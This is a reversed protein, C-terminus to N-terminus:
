AAGRRRGTNTVKAIERATDEPLPGGAGYSVNVVLSGGGGGGGGRGGPSAGRDRSASADPASQGGGGGFLSAAVAPGGVSVAQGLAILGVGAAAQAIGAPNGLIASAAGAAAVEAGKLTIFGGAQQSLGALLIEGFAAQGDAAAVAAQSIIGATTVVQSSIFAGHGEATQKKQRAEEQAIQVREEAQRQAERTAEADMRQTEQTAEANLRALEERGDAENKLRHAIADDRMSQLWIRSKEFTESEEMAEPSVAALGIKKTPLGAAAKGTELLQKQELLTVTKELINRQQEFRNREAFYEEEASVKMANRAKIVDAVQVNVADIEAQVRAAAQKVTEPGAADRRLAALDREAKQMQGAVAEVPGYTKAILDDQERNLSALHSSFADVAALGAVLALAFPGGAGFAAAMQGAGAVMKGVQGGMGEMSSSVLSIAAAQKSLGEASKGIRQRLTETSTATSTATTEAAKKTAAALDETARKQGLQAKAAADIAREHAASAKAAKTSEAGYDAIAKAAAEAAKQEKVIAATARTTADALARENGVLSVAAKDVKTLENNAQTADATITYKVQQDSM